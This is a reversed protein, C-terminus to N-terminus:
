GQGPIVDIRWIETGRLAWFRVNGSDDEGSWYIIADFRSSTKEGTMLWEKNSERIKLLTSKGDPATRNNADTVRLVAHFVGAQV